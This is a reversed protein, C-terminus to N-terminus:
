HLMNIQMSTASPRTDPSRTLLNVCIYQQDLEVRRRGLGDPKRASINAKFWVYQHFVLLWGPHRMSKRRGRAQDM